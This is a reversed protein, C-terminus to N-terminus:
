GTNRVTTSPHRTPVGFRKVGPEQIRMGSSPRRRLFPVRLALDFTTFRVFHAHNHRAICVFRSRPFQVSLFRFLLQDRWSALSSRFLSIILGRFEERRMPQGRSFM